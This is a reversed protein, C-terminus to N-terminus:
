VNFRGQVNWRFQEDTSSCTFSVLVSNIIVDIFPHCIECLFMASPSIMMVDDELFYFVTQSGQICSSFIVRGYLVNLYCIYLFFSLFHHLTKRLHNETSQHNISKASHLALAVTCQAVTCQAVRQTILAFVCTSEKM